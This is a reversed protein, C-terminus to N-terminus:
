CTSGKSHEINAMRIPTLHFKLTTKIPMEWHSLVKFMEKHEEQDNLIERKPFREKGRYGM